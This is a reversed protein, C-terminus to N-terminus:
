PSTRFIHNGDIDAVIDVTRVNSTVMALFPSRYMPYTGKLLRSVDDESLGPKIMLDTILSHMQVNIKGMSHRM